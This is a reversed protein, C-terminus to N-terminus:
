SDKAQAYKIGETPHENEIRDNTRQWREASEIEGLRTGHRITRFIAVRDVLRLRFLLLLLLDVVFVVGTFAIM